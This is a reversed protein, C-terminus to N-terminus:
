LPCKMIQTDASFGSYSNCNSFNQPKNAIQQQLQQRLIKNFDSM